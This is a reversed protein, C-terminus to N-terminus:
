SFHYLMMKRSLSGIFRLPARRPRKQEKGKQRRLWLMINDVLISLILIGRGLLTNKM